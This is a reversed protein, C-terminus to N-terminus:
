RVGALFLGLILMLNFAISSQVTSSNLGLLGREEHRGSFVLFTSRAILPFACLTLLAARPLDGDAIWALTLLVALANIAVYLHRRRSMRADLLSESDAAEAEPVQWLAEASWNSSALLGVPLSIAFLGWSWQGTLALYSGAMLLPGTLSAIAVQGIGCARFMRPCVIFVAMSLLALVTLLLFQWGEQTAFGIAISICCVITATGAFLIDRPALLGQAIAPNCSIQCTCGTDRRNALYDRLLSASAHAAAVIVLLLPLAALRVRSGDWYAYAWAVFVPLLSLSLPYLRIASWALAWPKPPINEDITYTERRMGGLSWERLVLEVPLIEMTHWPRTEWSEDGRDPYKANFANRIAPNADIPGLFRARGRGQVLKDPGQIAFAVWPQERLNACAASGEQTVCYLNTELHVFRQSEVWGRKGEGTGLAILPRARFFSDLEAPMKQKM